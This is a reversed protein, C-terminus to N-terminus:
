NSKIIKISQNGLRVYYVGKAWQGGISLTGSAQYLKRNEIMQGLTNYVELQLDENSAGEYVLTIQQQFPNPFYQLDVNTKNIAAVPSLATTDMIEFVDVASEIATGPDSDNAKFYVRMNNSLTIFDKIRFQQQLSWDYVGNKTSFLTATDTGNTMFVEFSDEANFPFPKNFYYYFTLQPDSYNSLDMVASRMVTAGSDIDDVGYQGNDNNGTVLCFDGIDTTIDGNDPLISGQWSYVDEPIAREWNGTVADGYETWGLDLVFEDKYGRKLAITPPTLTNSDLANVMVEKTHHGWHGALIQFEDNLIQISFNGNADTTTNYDYLSSHLEVTANAIGQSPNISDVVQGWFTFPVAPVLQVNQTTVQGNTLTVQITQPIYNAKKYQVNYTGSIGTGTKYNGTLNSYDEADTNLIKVEVDFLTASSSQDTIVGELWAARQYTPQLVHLGTNIDSVLLLGSPLFPYAGWAGYFGTSPTGNYTDFRGVEILNDPRSGDLIILGDTYYSTVLYDNFIHVNHPIVDENPTRWRDLEQINGLDSVDYSGIWANSKEDTTFLTQGDDSIWANHCFDRPTQQSALAVPTAPNSVDYVSFVGDNIDSTWLTDGRAYVDHAYYPATAGLYTPNMPSSNVDLIFPEGTNINSGAIYCYGNEDIYLNHAKNLTDTASNVTLEPRWFQYTPTGGTSLPMLDIILLGDQGQDTTVYAHHNWTKLDRWVSSAGPIFLVEVPAAPNALSVISTGTQTGVLAYETGTTDVYGWIDNLNQTYTLNSIQTLNFNQPQANINGFVLLLFCSALLKITSNM